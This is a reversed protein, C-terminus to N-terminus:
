YGKKELFKDLQENSLELTLPPLNNEKEFTDIEHYLFTTLRIFWRKSTFKEKHLQVLSRLIHYYEEEFRIM